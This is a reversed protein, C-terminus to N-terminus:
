MRHHGIPSNFQNGLAAHQMQEMKRLREIKMKRMNNNITTRAKNEERYETQALVSKTMEVNNRTLKSTRTKDKQTLSGRSSM